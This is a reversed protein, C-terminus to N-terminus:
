HLMNKQVGQFYNKLPALCVHLLFNELQDVSRNIMIHNTQVAQICDAM